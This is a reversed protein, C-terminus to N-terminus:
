SFDGLRADELRYDLFFDVLRTDGLRADLYGMDGLRFDEM